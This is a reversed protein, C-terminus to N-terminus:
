SQPGPLFRPPSLSLSLCGRQGDEDTVVVGTYLNVMEPSEVFSHSLYKEEPALPHDIKFGGGGKRLIGEVTVDGRMYTRGGGSQLQLWNDGGDWVNSGALKLTAKGDWHGFVEGTYVQGRLWSHGNTNYQGAEVTGRTTVGNTVALDAGRLQGAVGLSAATVDSAAVSGSVSLNGAIAASGPATPAAMGGVTLTKTARLTGAALNGTITASGPDAPAAIDSV